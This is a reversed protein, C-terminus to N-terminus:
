PADTSDGSAKSENLVAQVRLRAAEWDYQVHDFPRHDVFPREVRTTEVARELQRVLIRREDADLCEDVSAPILWSVMWYLPPKHYILDHENRLWSQYREAWNAVEEESWGLLASLAENWIRIYYAHEETM